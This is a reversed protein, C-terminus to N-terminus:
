EYPYNIRNWKLKENDNHQTLMFVAALSIFCVGVPVATKPVDASAENKMEKVCQSFSVTLFLIYKSPFSFLHSGLTYKLGLLSLIISLLGM